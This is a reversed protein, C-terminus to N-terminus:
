CLLRRRVGVVVSVACDRRHGMGGVNGEPWLQQLIYVGHATWHSQKSNRRPGDGHLVGTGRQYSHKDDTITGVLIM